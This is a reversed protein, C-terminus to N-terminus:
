AALLMDAADEHELTEVFHTWEASPRPILFGMAKYKGRPPASSWRPQLALHFDQLVGSVVAYCTTM